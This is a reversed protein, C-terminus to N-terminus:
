PIAPGPLIARGAAMDLLRELPPISERIARLTNLSRAVEQAASVGPAMPHPFGVDSIYRYVLLPLAARAELPSIPRHKVYAMIISEAWDLRITHDRRSRRALMLIGTGLDYMPSEWRAVDLDFLGVISNGAFKLNRGHFDGWVIQKPLALYEDASLATGLRRQVALAFERSRGREPLDAAWDEEFARSIIEEGRKVWDSYPPFGAPEVYGAPATDEALFRHLEGVLAAAAEAQERSSYDYAEGDVWEYAAWLEGDFATVADGRRNPIVEPVPFGGRRLSAHLDMQFRVREPHRNRLFCRVVWSVTGADGRLLAVWNPNMVSGPLPSVGEIRSPEVGYLGSLLDAIDRETWRFLTNGVSQYQEIVRAGLHLTRKETGDGTTVSKPM